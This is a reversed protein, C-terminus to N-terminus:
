KYLNSALHAMRGSSFGRMRQLVHSAADNSNNDVFIDDNNKDNCDNWKDEEEVAVVDVSGGTLATIPERRRPRKLIRMVSFRGKKIPEVATTEFRGEKLFEIVSGFIIQNSLVLIYQGSGCCPARQCFTYIYSGCKTRNLRVM